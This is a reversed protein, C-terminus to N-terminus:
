LLLCGHRMILYYFTRTARRCFIDFTFPALRMKRLAVCQAFADPMPERMFRGARCLTAGDDYGRWARCFVDGGEHCKRKRQAARQMACCEAHRPAAASEAYRREGLPVRQADAAAM